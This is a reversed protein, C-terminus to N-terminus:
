YCHLFWSCSGTQSMVCCLWRSVSHSCQTYINYIGMHYLLVNHLYQLFQEICILTGSGFVQFMFIIKFNLLFYRLITVSNSAYRRSNIFLTCTSKPQLLYSKFFVGILMTLQIFELMLRVVFNFFCHLKSFNLFWCSNGERGLDTWGLCFLLRFIEHSQGKLRWSSQPPRRGSIRWAFFTVTKTRAAADRRATSTRVSRQKPCRRSRHDLALKNDSVSDSSLM